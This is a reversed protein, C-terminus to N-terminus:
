RGNGAVWLEVYRRLWAILSQTLSAADRLLEFVTVGVAQGQGVLDERGSVLDGGTFNGAHGETGSVDRSKGSPRV